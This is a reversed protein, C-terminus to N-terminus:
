AYQNRWLWRGNIINELYREALFYYGNKKAYIKSFSELEKQFDSNNCANPKLSHPLVTLSFRVYYTDIDNPLHAVDIKQINPTDINKLNKGTGSKFDSISGRITIDKVPIPLEKGDRLYYFEGLSPQLSRTYSLLNPLSLKSM